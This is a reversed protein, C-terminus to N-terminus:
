VGALKATVVSMQASAVMPDRGGPVDAGVIQEVVPLGGVEAGARDQVRPPIVVTM